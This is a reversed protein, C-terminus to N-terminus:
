ERNKGCVVLVAIVGLLVVLLGVLVLATPRVRLRLLLPAIGDLYRLPM